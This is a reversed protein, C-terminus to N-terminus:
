QHKRTLWQTFTGVDSEERQKRQEKLAYEAEHQKKSTM